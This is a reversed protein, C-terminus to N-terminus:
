PAHVFIGEELFSSLPPNPWSKSLRGLDEMKGAKKKKKKKKEEMDKKGQKSAGFEAAWLFLAGRGNISRKERQMAMILCATLRDPPRRASRGVSPRVGM